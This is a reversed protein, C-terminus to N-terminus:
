SAAWRRKEKAIYIESPIREIVQWVWAGYSAWRETSVDALGGFSHQSLLRNDYHPRYIPILRLFPRHGSLYIEGPRLFRILAALPGGFRDTAVIGEMMEYGLSRRSDNVPGRVLTSWEARTQILAGPWIQLFGYDEGMTLFPPIHQNLEPPTHTQWYEVFGPYHAIDMLPLWEAGPGTGDVDYSWEIGSAGDWRVAIDLPLFLDYGFESAEQVPKCHRVASIPLTGYVDKSAQRPTLGGPVLQNITILPDSDARRRLPHSSTRPNDEAHQEGM